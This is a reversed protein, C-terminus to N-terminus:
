HQRKNKKRFLFDEFQIVLGKKIDFAPRRIAFLFDFCDSLIEPVGSSFNLKILVLFTRALRFAFPYNSINMGIGKQFTIQIDLSKSIHELRIKPLYRICFERIHVM